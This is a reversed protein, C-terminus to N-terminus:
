AECASQCAKYSLSSIQINDESCIIELHPPAIPIDRKEEYLVSCPTYQKCEYVNQYFCNKDEISNCCSAAECIKECKSRGQISKVSERTCINGLNSPASKVSHNSSSINEDSSDYKLGVVIAIIFILVGGGM